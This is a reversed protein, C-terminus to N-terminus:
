VLSIKVIEETEPTVKFRDDIRYGGVWIIQDGKLVVPIKKRAQAPIKLDIFFDKLKRHGKMGLPMFRDGPWFNRIVLPYSLRKKDLLATDTDTVPSIAQSKILEQVRITRSIEHICIEGNGRIEYYFPASGSESFSFVLNSYEKRIINNEPLNITINPRPNFLLDFIQQVHNSDIGHLSSKHRKIVGRIIRKVLARHLTKLPRIDVMYEGARNKKLNGAVWEEAMTEILGNEERFHDSLRGLMEILEPQYRTLEPILQQRISNRTFRTDNNSSDVA